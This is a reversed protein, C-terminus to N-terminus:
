KKYSRRDMYLGKVSMEKFFTLRRVNKAIIFNYWKPVSKDLFLFIKAFNKRWKFRQERDM